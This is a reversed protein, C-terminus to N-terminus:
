LIGLIFYKYPFSYIKNVHHLPMFHKPRGLGVVYVYTESGSFYRSSFWAKKQRVIQSKVRDERSDTSYIFKLQWVFLLIVLLYPIHFWQRQM